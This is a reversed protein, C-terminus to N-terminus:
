IRSSCFLIGENEVSIEAIKEKSNFHHVENSAKKFLFNILEDDLQVKHIGKFKPKTACVDYPLSTLKKTTQYHFTLPVSFYGNQKIEQAVFMRFKLNKKTREQLRQKMLKFRGIFKYIYGYIRVVKDFTFKTPSLPYNSYQARELIKEKKINIMTVIEQQLYNEIDVIHGPTLIDPTREFVIGENFDEEM